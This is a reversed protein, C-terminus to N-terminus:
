LPRLDKEKDGYYSGATPTISLERAEGEVMPWRVWISFTRRNRDVSRFLVETDFVEGDKEFQIQVEDGRKPILPSWGNYRKWDDVTSKM